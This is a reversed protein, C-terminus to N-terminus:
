LVIVKRTGALQVLAIVALTTAFAEVMMRPLSTPRRVGAALPWLAV